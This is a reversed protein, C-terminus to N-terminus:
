GNEMVVRQEYGHLMQQQEQLQEMQTAESERVQQIM